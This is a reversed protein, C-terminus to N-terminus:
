DSLKGHNGEIWGLSHRSLIKLYAVAAKKENLNV